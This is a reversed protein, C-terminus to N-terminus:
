FADAQDGVQLPRAALTLETPSISALSIPKHPVESWSVPAFSALLIVIMTAAIGMVVNRM